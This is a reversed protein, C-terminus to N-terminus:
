ALPLFLLTNAIAGGLLWWKDPMACVASLGIGWWFAIEGLYNPHRSYKWLGTRIFGKRKTKRFEHMQCDATGQLLVALLSLTFFAVSGFNLQPQAQMIFVAPLVCGFVVLTPVLHIGFFNVLPYWKGTQEKLHTYRWDQHELGHFTYAWNATLRVGWVAVAVLLLVSAGNGEGYPFFAFLIVIPQVSWYPDYVSANELSVSFLFTIATAVADAILLNLWFEFPLLLYTVVGVATALLYVIAVIVFSWTRSKIM